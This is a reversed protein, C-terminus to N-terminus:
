GKGEEELFSKEKLSPQLSPNESSAPVPDAETKKKKKSKIKSHKNQSKKSLGTKKQRLDVFAQKKSSVVAKSRHASLIQSLTAQRTKCKAKALKMYSPAYPSTIKRKNGTSPSKSHPYSSVPTRASTKISSQLGGDKPSTDNLSSKKTLSTVSSDLVSLTKPHSPNSQHSTRVPTNSHNLQFSLNSSSPMEEINYNSASTLDHSEVPHDLDEQQSTIEFIDLEDGTLPTNVIFDRPEFSGSTHNDKPSSTKKSNFDPFWDYPEFAPQKTQRVASSGEDSLLNLNEKSSQRIGHKSKALSEKEYNDISNLPSNQYPVLSPITHTDSLSNEGQLLNIGGDQQPTPDADSFQDPTSHPLSPTKGYGSKKDEPVLAQALSGPKLNPQLSSLKYGARGRGIRKAPGTDTQPPSIRTQPFSSSVGQIPLSPSTPKSLSGRGLGRPKAAAQQFSSNSMLSPSPPKPTSNKGLKMNETQRTQPIPQQSRSQSSIMKTVVKTKGQSGLDNSQTQSSHSPSSRNQSQFQAPRSRVQDGQRQGRHGPDVANYRANNEYGDNENGAENNKDDHFYKLKVRAHQGVKLFEPLKREPKAIYLFRRGSKFTTLKNKNKPNDFERYCDLYFESGIKVGISLLSQKLDYDSTEFPINEITLRITEQGDVLYPCKGLLQISYGNIVLGYCLLANRSQYDTTLLRWSNSYLQAGFVKDSGILRSMSDCIIKGVKYVPENILDPPLSKPLMYVTPRIYGTKEVLAAM